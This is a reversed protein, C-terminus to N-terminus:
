DREISTHLVHERMFLSTVYGVGITVTSFLFTGRCGREYAGRIVEAVEPSVEKVYDASELARKLIKEALKPDEVVRHISSSLNSATVTQFIASAISVGLTSGTARFTYQISTTCAQYKAPVSAILALLTVTLICSYGLGPPLMITFQKLISDDRSLTLMRTMGALSVIGVLVTLTYYRGTRRMYLGAGVSGVAVAFFNPVLREGSETASLGMVTQFYFPVYFLYSYVGMTYFWNAMSSSMVTRETMINIPIIPEASIYKETYIFALLLALALIVLGIFTKSSFAFKQGGLSAAVLYLMLSSVLFFSGLFDVRKLKEQFDAGSAGLGPSGEPLKLNLFIATGVIIALPVQLLFVWKWGFSDSILGGIIGGSAAGLGFAINALGQFLGRDRLPILDSMTITGLTTLGSGGCGTIFRGFVLLWLNDTVCICCGVAFFGCCIILLVRRGFIDSLKGFLPQFASCSLLYATAVWGINNVADLDSAIVALLTTVVTTDLAALFSAMYLSGIVAIFQPKPLAFHSTSKTDKQVTGYGDSSPEELLGDEETGLENALIGPTGTSVDNIVSAHLHVGHEQDKSKSKPMKAFFVFDM